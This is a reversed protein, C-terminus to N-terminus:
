KVTLKDPAFLQKLEREVSQANYTQIQLTVKDGCKFVKDGGKVLKPNDISDGKRVFSKIICDPPFLIDRVTKGILFSGEIVEYKLEVISSQKNGDQKRLIKGLMIDNISDTKSIQMVIFAVIVSLILFLSNNNVGTLEIVFVMATIPARMSAGLTACMCMIVVIGSYQLPLGLKLMIEFLIGGVIAGLVLVPVFLGGTAGSNAATIVLVIKLVFVVLLTVLSLKNISIEKILDHGSGLTEPIFLIAVFAILMAILVKVFQNVKKLKVEVFRNLVDMMRNFLCATLGAFLGVLIPIYILKPPLIQLAEIHFLALDFELLSALLNATISALAVTWMVVILLIFSFRKHIEELVFVIGAIPAGTAVAFGAAGAGTLVYRSQVDYRNSVAKGIATGLMVSPGETGLSLGSFFTVLSSVFTGILVRLWRFTILGRLIGEARPIGGGKIDPAVKIFFYILYACLAIGIIGVPIFKPNQRVFDYLYISLGSILNVCFKFLTVIVGTFIGAISCLIPLKIVSLIKNKHILKSMNIRIEVMLFASSAFKAMQKSIKKKNYEKFYAFDFIYCFRAEKSFFSKM